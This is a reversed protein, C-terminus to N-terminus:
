RNITLPTVQRNIHTREFIHGKLAWKAFYRIMNTIHIRMMRGSSYSAAAHSHTISAHPYYLVTGERWMRRSLDIDEPYLFFREDFGGIKRATDVRLLLFCGTQYPVRLPSTLDCDKLLYHDNAKAYISNPLFRRGFLIFPSPLRRSAFQPTGDALLVRPQLQVVDPNRQMVGILETLVEPNFHVDANLVLHFPETSNLLVANNAAGFGRNPLAIYEVGRSAAYLRLRDESGNDAIVIRSVEPATLSDICRDLELTSTHFTCISVSIM